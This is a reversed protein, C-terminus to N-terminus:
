KLASFYDVTMTSKLSKWIQGHYEWSIQKSIIEQLSIKISYINARM